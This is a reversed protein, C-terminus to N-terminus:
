DISLNAERVVKRWRATETKIFEAFQEPTSALPEFGIKQISERADITAAIRVWEANLRIIIDRPTGAPALLGYWASVEFNDMGAERATPVNPLSPLRRESLVALAKVKGAQIQTLSSPAGIAVMDVEGGMMAMMAQNVGKYPVHVIKIKALNNLIEGTLHNTTGLGGSGFNLKGPNAKALAVLEKLSNVPLSARVVLVNPIEAVLSIPDLDKVPDYNLKKYLSPSVAIAPPSLVITYGDPRARAALELGINGGAGPRNEPVFPQGLREGLKQCIIRGLIDTVGGPNMPLLIRIPKSPYTQGCVPTIWASVLLFVTATACAIAKWSTKHFGSLNSRGRVGDDLIEAANTLTRGSKSHGDMAM